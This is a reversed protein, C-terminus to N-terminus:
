FLNSNNQTIEQQLLFLICRQTNLQLYIQTAHNNSTHQENLRARGDEDPPKM